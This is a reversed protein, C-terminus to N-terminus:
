RTVPDLRSLGISVWCFGLLSATQPFIKECACPSAFASFILSEQTMPSIWFIVWKPNPNEMLFVVGADVGFLM